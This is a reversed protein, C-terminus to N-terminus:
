LFDAALLKRLDGIAALEIDPRPTLDANDRAYHGQQVHVTTFREPFQAKLSALIRYKDDIMVWRDAPYKEMVMGISTEKHVFIEVHNELADAIGAEAIKKPQFVPDGDSVVVATGFRRVHHIAEIAHPFLHRDFRYGDLLASLKKYGHDDDPHQEHFRELTLPFDVVDKERRVLEYLDWFIREGEEGVLRGIRRDLDAKVFDNDLLTNDVDFLFVLKRDIM